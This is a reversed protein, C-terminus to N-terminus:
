DPPNFTALLAPYRDFPEVHALRRLADEKTQGLTRMARYVSKMNSLIETPSVGEFPSAQTKPSQSSDMAILPSPVTEELLRILAGFLNKDECSDAVAKMMPHDRELRYFTKGHRVSPAWLFTRQSASNPVLRAGRHKYVDSARERTIRAIRKLDSRLSAPPSARSKKVDLQWEDDTSNPIDIRIRALEHHREKRFGLGLWDAALLLRRNRYVYFGQSALWGDPGAGLEYEERDLKSLHPLVYAAVKIRAANLALSEVGIEQTAPNKDLFPDWPKLKVSNVLIVLDGDRIFDSFTVGLHRCVEDAARYFHDRAVQDSTDAEGVLRDLDSWIVITGSKSKDLLAAEEELHEPLNKLVYWKNSREVLNLDWCRESAKEGACISRVAVVRCQSFSATKLGLGFRGMDSKSRIERPSISGLRMAQLLDKESIGEGDDQISITSASGQWRFDVRIKSAGAAISNDILDAIATPLDYGFARLSEMLAAPNPSADEVLAHDIKYSQSDGDAVGGAERRLTRKASYDFENKAM